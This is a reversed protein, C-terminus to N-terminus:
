CYCFNLIGYSEKPFTKTFKKKVLHQLFDCPISFYVYFTYKNEKLGLLLSKTFLAAADIVDFNPFGHCCYCFKLAWLM